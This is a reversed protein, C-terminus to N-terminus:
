KNRFLSFTKLLKMTADYDLKGGEYDCRYLGQLDSPLHVGKEVLLIFNKDYLAMAAGIEILVNENLVHHPSGQPDVLEMEKEVNIVAASCLRMERIVKQPVPEATSEREVSSLPDFGGFTLLDKLQQVIQRNKGHAIFVKNTASPQSALQITSLPKPVHPQESNGEPEGDEGSGDPV